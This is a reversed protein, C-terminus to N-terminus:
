TAYVALALLVVFIVIVSNVTFRIFGNFTKEQESIDMSGPKFDEDAMRDTKGSETKVQSYRLGHPM